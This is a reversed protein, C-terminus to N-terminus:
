RAGSMSSCSTRPRTGWGCPAPTKSDPSGDSSASPSTEAETSPTCSRCSRPDGAVARLLWDRWAVAESIHGSDLLAQLTFTADRLWCYRYDWNRVGGIQEPLSTTAAATVAGTPAYILSKLVVLSDQVDGAWPGQVDTQASWDDWFEQADRLADLADVEEPRDLYSPGYTLMFPVEDGAGVTFEAVTSRERGHTAVPTRLWVADPGAIAELTGSDLRRMWPVVRGYNFRLMLSMAMTVTGALGKVVRVVRVASTTDRRPPM